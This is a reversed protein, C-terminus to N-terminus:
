VILGARPSHLNLLVRRLTGYIFGVTGIGVPLHLAMRVSCYVSSRPGVGSWSDMSPSHPNLPARQFTGCVCQTIGVGAPLHLAMQVSRYVPFMNRTGLSNRKSPARQFMGCVCREPGIGMGVPLCQVTRVSRYTSMIRIDPSHAMQPNGASVDWLCANGDTDDISKGGSSALTSGDPSFAINYIGGWHGGTLTTKISGTAVDWLRVTRDMDGGGTALTSGDPSFAISSFWSRQGRILELEQFTKTDYLWIGISSGVAFTSGDPSYTGAGVSGKGIRAIAGEPLSFQTHAVYQALGPLISVSSVILLTLTFLLMRKVKM